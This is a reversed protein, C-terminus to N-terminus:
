ARHLRLKDVSRFLPFWRPPHSFLSLTTLGSAEEVPLATMAADLEGNTGGAATLGGFELGGAPEARPLTTLAFVQNAWGYCAASWRPPRGAM